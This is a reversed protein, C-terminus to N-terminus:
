AARGQQWIRGICVGIERALPRDTDRLQAAHRIAQRPNLVVPPAYGDGSLHVTGAQPWVAVRRTM